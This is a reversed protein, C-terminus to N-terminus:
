ATADCFSSLAAPRPKMWLFWAAFRLDAKAFAMLWSYVLRDREECLGRGMPPAKQQESDSNEPKSNPRPNPRRWHAARRAADRNPAWSECFSEPDPM